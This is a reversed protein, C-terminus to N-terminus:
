LSVFFLLYCSYFVSIGDVFLKDNTIFFDIVMRPDHAYVFGKGLAKSGRKMLLRVAVPTISLTGELGRGQQYEVYRNM